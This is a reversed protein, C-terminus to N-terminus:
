KKNESISDIKIELIMDDTINDTTNNTFMKATAQVATNYPIIIDEDVFEWVNGNSDTFTYLNPLESHKIFGTRSYHTDSYACFLIVGIVLGVVFIIKIVEFCKKIM